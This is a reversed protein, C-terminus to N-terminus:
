LRSEADAILRAMDENPYVRYLARLEFLDESAGRTPVPHALTNAGPGIPLGATIPETPRDTPADLPGMMGPAIAIGGGGTTPRSPSGPTAAVVAAQNVGDGYQADSGNLDSRNAYAAGPRGTRAGGTPM